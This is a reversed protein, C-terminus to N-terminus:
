VCFFFTIFCCGFSMNKMMIFSYFLKQLFFISDNTNKYKIKETKFAALAGHIVLIAAASIAAFHESPYAESIGNAM